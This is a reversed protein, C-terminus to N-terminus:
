GQPLDTPTGPVGNGGFSADVEARIAALSRGEALRQRALLATEVCVDCFSAHEEFAVAGGAMRARLFCDLNSRHDMAACGCYCPMWRVVDPRELAFRYAEQVRSPADRVYGPRAAWAAEVADAAAGAGDNGAPPAATAGGAMAPMTATGDTGGCAAVLGGSVALFCVLLAGSLAARRRAPPNPARM